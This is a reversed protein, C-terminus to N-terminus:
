TECTLNVEPEADLDRQDALDLSCQDAASETPDTALDRLADCDFGPEDHCDCIYDAYRDCPTEEECALLGALVLMVTALRLM